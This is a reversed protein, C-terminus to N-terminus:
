STKRYNLIAWGNFVLAFLLIILIHHTINHFASGKLVVMRMVEIFYTVPNLKAIV